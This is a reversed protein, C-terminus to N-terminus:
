SRRRNRGSTRSSANSQGVRDRASGLLWRGDPSFAVVTLHAAPLVLECDPETWDRKDVKRLRIRNDFGCYALWRSDTSFAVSRVPGRQLSSTWPAANTPFAPLSTLDWLCAQRGSGMALWRGDPSVAPSSIWDQPMPLPVGGVTRLADRLSQEASPVPPEGQRLSIDVAEAALLLSRQPFEAIAERAQLSLRQATAARLERVARDRAKQAEQRQATEARQASVARQQEDVAVKAESAAQVAFYSAITSGAVLVVAVASTLAAVVPNRRCWRWLREPGGAPRAAIPRGSLWRSLDAAMAQASEYRHQPEKQLCKLCITELNRPVGANLQRLPVPEQRLVQSLTEMPNAAQFPPRGTLLTYLIAGLAYVDSAPGIQDLEGRAQEPPMYSPTGLVQGSATLGSDGTVRKALGFDTVRPRGSSDLLVNAPKLDRHIVGKEHAFQVAQAVQEVLEAAERPPLPGKAVKAVLSQGEVYGMSFYHQGEHEGVEFVPVIGPHDLQAAAEAETYFRKVDDESALQGALIMKLAVVRNLKVQRAKYVVGM